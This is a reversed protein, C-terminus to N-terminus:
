GTGLMYIVLLAMGALVRLTVAHGAAAPDNADIVHRVRQYRGAAMMGVIPLSWGGHRVVPGGDVHAVAAAAM